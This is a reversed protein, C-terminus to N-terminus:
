SFRGAGVTMNTICRLGDESQSEVGHLSRYGYFLYAGRERYDVEHRRWLRRLFGVRGIAAALRSKPSAPSFSRVNPYIVLQGRRPGSITPLVVPLIINLFTGDFHFATVDSTTRMINIGPVIEETRIPSDLYPKRGDIEGLLANVLDLVYDSRALEGVATPGLSEGKLAFKRNAGATSATAAAELDLIQQKLLAHGEPSLFEEIAVYGVDDLTRRISALRARDTPLRRFEESVLGEVTLQTSEGSVRRRVTDLPLCAWAPWERAAPRAPEISPTVV